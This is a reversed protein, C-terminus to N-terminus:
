KEQATIFAKAPRVKLQGMLWISMPMEQILVFGTLVAISFAPIEVILDVRKHLNALILENERSTGLLAREFLAETLVCGLWAGVALIHVALIM